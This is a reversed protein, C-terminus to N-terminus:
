RLSSNNIHSTNHTKCLVRVLYESNSGSSTLIDTALVLLTCKQFLIKLQEEKTCTDHQSKHEARVKCAQMYYMRKYMKRIRTSIVHM